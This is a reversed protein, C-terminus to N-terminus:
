LSQPIRRDQYAFAPTEDHFTTHAGFDQVIRLLALARLFEEDMDSHSPHRAIGFLAESTPVM